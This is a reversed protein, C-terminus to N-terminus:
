SNAFQDFHFRVRIMSVRSSVLLRLSTWDAGLALEGGQLGLEVSTMTQRLPQGVTDVVLAGRHCGGVGAVGSLQQRADLGELSLQAPRPGLVLVVLVNQDVLVRPELSLEPVELSFSLAGSRCDGAEAVDALLVFGAELLDNFDEGFNLGLDVGALLGDARVVRRDV